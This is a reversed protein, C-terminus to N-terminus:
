ETYLGTKPQCKKMLRRKKGAATVPRRPFAFKTKGKENM